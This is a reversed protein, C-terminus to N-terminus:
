GATGALAARLAQSADDAGAGRLVRDRVAAAFAEVQSILAQHFVREGDTGAMFDIREHGQTGIVELWCSDGESFRRGLSVIGLTGGSLSCLLAVSEPDGEVPDDYAVGSALGSVRDVDQGSLWRLQDFEHVGMDVVIGGSTERFARPPPREDWQWCAIASLEGFVGAHIRDRLDVLTPVFRRWFGVQLLVGGREAADRAHSTEEPATGCPKECLVHLGAEALREVLSLHLASPAAVIAAQADGSELLADVSAYASLGRSTAGARVRESPDAVAAAEVGSAADLASLHLQGM